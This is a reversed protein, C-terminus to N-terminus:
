DVDPPKTEGGEPKVASVIEYRGLTTPCRVVETVLVGVASVVQLPGGQHSARRRHRLGRWWGRGAAAGGLVFDAVVLRGGPGLVRVMEQVARTPDNFHRLATTSLVASFTAAPFPLQGADAVVFGTGPSAAALARARRVMAASRDVGVALEVTASASRVAAGTACGVDLFQDAAALGLGAAARSQLIVFRRSLPEDEYWPAWRAFRDHGRPASVARESV